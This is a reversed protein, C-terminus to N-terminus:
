TLVYSPEFQVESSAPLLCIYLLPPYILIEEDVAIML